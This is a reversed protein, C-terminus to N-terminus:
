RTRDLLEELLSAVGIPEVYHPNIIRSRGEDEDEDWRSITKAEDLYGISSIAWWTSNPWQRKYRDLTLRLDSPTERDLCLLMDRLRKFKEITDWEYYPFIDLKTLCFFSVKPASSRGLQLAEFITRLVEAFQPLYDEDSGIRYTDFFVVIADCTSIYEQYIEEPKLTVLDYIDGTLDYLGGAVDLFHLIRPKPGFLGKSRSRCLFFHHLREDEKTPDPFEGSRADKMGKSIRKIDEWSAGSIDWRKARLSAKIGAYRLFTTKGSSALGILAVNTIEANEIHGLKAPDPKFGADSNNM